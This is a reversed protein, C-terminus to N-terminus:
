GRCAPASATPSRLRAATSCRSTSRAAREPVPQDGAAGGSASAQPWWEDSGDIGVGMSAGPRCKSGSSPPSSSTRSRRTTSSPSSGRRTRARVAGRRRLRHAAPDPLGEVERGRAHQQLLGVDGPRRRLPGRDRGRPRQDRRAGAQRLPHEHVRRQAARLPQRDGEGPVAGARLLRRALGGPAHPRDARGEGVAGAVRATVRDMERYDSLSFPNGQDDYVVASSDTALDKSPDLSIRRNLLEPKRRSQLQAYRHLVDAIAQAREAGSTRRRTSRAGMRRPARAALPGPEVRLGPLVADAARQEEPRRRQGGLPSRRRLRLGPQLQEWINPLQNTDVWKYNRGGGVYDFHYYLGYGGSRPPESKAPLKRMNGWNDDTFVVTVDDPVRLGKDWYRQVEKYLTWVQPITTIDKSPSTPSSRASPPSSAAADARHRRRRAPQRRRQRAHRADRRGRLGRRGHAQHRRGLVGQDRGRQPPLEVRRHRRLSRVRAHRHQRRRRARRGQRPPEVGRHRADDAGRALHGDRRRVAQGDRPQAPRGRRLRPGLGGALPLQGQAAAHDRLGAAYFNSNFGNPFGPAKGPGFYAPAWRGLAPNEDNIFFGRYKVKPTGQTHRGPLVYLANQHRAPVDDWFHWPSVGIQKSVDYAGYITGRQDSGAIVFARDVGPLPNTM